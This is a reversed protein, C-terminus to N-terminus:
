TYTILLLLIFYTYLFYLCQNHMYYDVIVWMFFWSLTEFIKTKFMKYDPLLEDSMVYPADKPVSELVKARLDVNNIIDFIQVIIHLNVTDVEDIFKSTGSNIM